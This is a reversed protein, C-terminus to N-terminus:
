CKYRAMDHKREDYQGSMVDDIITQYFLKNLHPVSFSELARKRMTAGIKSAEEKHDLVWQVKDHLATIDNEKVIMGDPGIQYPVSGSSSGIIPKGTVMAQVVALSFTEVWQRTTLPVHIACDIANWYKAIEYNDIFGTLIIKEELRRKSIAARIRNNEEESGKGMMLFKWNGDLPMSEIIVDLGKDPTFRSASGFVYTKDDIGYKDRIEKRWENNPYFWEPNVGVQTQMYISQTFGEKRLMKVADPYHCFVADYKNKIYKVVLYSYLKLYLFKTKQLISSNQKSVHEIPGRMTFLLLKTNPFNKRILKAVQVLVLHTHTGLVYVIDPSIENFIEQYDDSLWSHKYKLSIPRIHFNGENLEKASTMEGGDYTYSKNSYWKFKNPTLLTIDVDRYEKAFLKWRRSYYEKQFSHNILVIKLM